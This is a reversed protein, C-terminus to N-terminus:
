AHPAFRRGDLRVWAESNATNLLFQEAFASRVSQAHEALIGSMVLSGQPKVLASLPAALDILTGALINAIM